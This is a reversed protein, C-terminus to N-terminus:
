PMRLRKRRDGQLGGIAQNDLVFYYFDMLQDIVPFDPVAVIVTITLAQAFEYYQSLFCNEPPGSRFCHVGSPALEKM